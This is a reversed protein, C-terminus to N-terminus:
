PLYERPDRFLGLIRPYNVPVLRLLWALFHADPGVMIRPKGRAAGCLITAAADEATTRVLEMFAEHQEDASVNPDSNRGSRAINTGVGGPHVCCVRVGSEALALDQRLAETYGRVAFKSANYAAQTPVGIMGFVSSINVLTGDSSRELLPLLAETGNVM